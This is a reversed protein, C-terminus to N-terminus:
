VVNFIGFRYCSEVVSHGVLTGWVTVFYDAIGDTWCYYACVFVFAYTYEIHVCRLEDIRHDCMLVGDGINCEVRILVIHQQRRAVVAWQAQPVQLVFVTYLFHSHMTLFVVFAYVADFVMCCLRVHGTTSGIGYNLNVDSVIFNKTYRYFFYLM